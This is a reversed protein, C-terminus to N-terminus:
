QAAQAGLITAPDVSADYSAMPFTGAAMLMVECGEPGASEPGYLTGAKVWRIDGVKYAGEGEVNFVGQRVVYVTDAPHWHVKGVYNPPFSFIVVAVDCEEPTVPRLTIAPPTGDVREAAPIDDLHIVTRPTVAPGNAARRWVQTTM